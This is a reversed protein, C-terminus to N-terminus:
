VSCRGRPPAQDPFAPHHRRASVSARLPSSCRRRHTIYTEIANNLSFLLVINKTARLPHAKSARTPHTRMPTISPHFSPYISFKVSSRMKDYCAGVRRNKTTVNESVIRRYAITQHSIVIREQLNKETTCGNWDPCVPEKIPWM